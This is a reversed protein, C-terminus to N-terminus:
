SEEDKLVVGHEYGRNSHESSIGRACIAEVDRGISCSQEQRHCSAEGSLNISEVSVVAGNVCAVQEFPKAIRPGSVGDCMGGIVNKYMPEDTQMVSGESMTERSQGQPRSTIKNHKMCM